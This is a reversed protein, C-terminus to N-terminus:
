EGARAVAPAEPPPEPYRPERSREYAAERTGHLEAARLQAVTETRELPIFDSLAGNPGFHTFWGIQQMSPPCLEVPKKLPEVGPV